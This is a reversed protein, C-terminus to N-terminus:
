KWAKNKQAASHQPPVEQFLRQCTPPAGGGGGGGGGARAAPRERQSHVTKM